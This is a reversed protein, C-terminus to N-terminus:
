DSELDGVEQDASNNALAELRFQASLNTASKSFEQARIVEGRTLPKGDSNVTLLDWIQAHTKGEITRLVRGRRQVYERYNTSSSLIVAKNTSPIDVGEDLCKIALIIGGKKAFYRLIEQHERKNKSHYDMLAAPLQNAQMAERVTNLHNISECYILWRDGPEYNERVIRAAAFAKSAAGKSIRARRIAIKKAKETMKGKNRAIERSLDGTMAIWSDMEEDSLACEEFFYDYPCLVGSELADEIQYRPELVPGFFDFIARTGEEDGVREPTASLGMAAGVKLSTAIERTDSAGFTHVEDGVVFLHEGGSVSSLFQETKATQYTVLTIRQRTTGESTLRFLFKRWVSRPTGAGATQVVADPLWSHIEKEWQRVLITSPLLVVAPGRKRTWDDIAKLATLTKGGGTAFSIVGKNQNAQWNALAKEQYERLRIQPPKERNPGLNRIKSRFERLIADVPEPPSVKFVIASAESSSTVTVGRRLGGWLEEFYQRHGDIRAVDREGEWSKFIEIQEHNGFGSWASASENASGVFSVQDGDQDCFIGVKDHFLNSDKAVEAFRLEVAGVALLSSLIRLLDRRQDKRDEVLQELARVAEALSAEGDSSSAVIAKREDGALRPSCLLRVKGGRSFFDAFASPALAWLASSFYGTARDYTQAASMTPLFFDELLDHSSTSLQDDIRLNRLKM